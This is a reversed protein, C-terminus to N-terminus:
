KEKRGESARTSELPESRFAQILRYAKRFVYYLYLGSVITVVGAAVAPALVVWMYLTPFFLYKLLALLASIAIGTRLFGFPKFTFTINSKM